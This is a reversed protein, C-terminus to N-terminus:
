SKLDGLRLDGLRSSPSRCRLLRVTAASDSYCGWYASYDATGAIDPVSLASHRVVVVMGIMGGMGRFQGLHLKADARQLRHEGLLAVDIRGRVVGHDFSIFGPDAGMGSRGDDGLRPGIRCELLRQQRIRGFRHLRKAQDAADTVM